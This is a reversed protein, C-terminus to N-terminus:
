EFGNVRVGDEVVTVEDVFDPTHGCHPCTVKPAYRGALLDEMTVGCLRAIRFAMNATMGRRGNAAQELSGPRFGIAKSVARWGGLRVRLVRLVHRVPAQEKESLDSM